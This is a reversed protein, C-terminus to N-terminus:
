QPNASSGQLAKIPPDQYTTDITYGHEKLAAETKLREAHYKLLEAPLLTKWNAIKESDGSFYGVGYFCYESMADISLLYTTKGIFGGINSELLSVKLYVGDSYFIWRPMDILAAKWEEITPRYNPDPSYVSDDKLRDWAQKGVLRPDGIDIYRVWGKARLDSFLKSMRALAAEHTDAQEPSVGFNIDWEFIGEPVDRDDTGMVSLVNDITFSHKGHVFEVTGLKGREWERQYFKMGSPHNDISSGPGGLNSGSPNGLQIRMPSSNTGSDDDLPLNAPSHRGALVAGFVVVVAILIFFLISRM